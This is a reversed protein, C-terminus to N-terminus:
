SRARAIMWDQISGPLIRKGLAALYTAKTVYYRAKPRPSELAHLLKKYVAEPPLKFKTAGGTEMKDMLRQYTESHASSAIDINAKFANLAHESFRTWIPGPEIISVNIGTGKLELRMADSLAELAFKSANYAGTYPTSVLGLVSSCQVIRGRSNKRMAPILRNTLDHWGFFNAEFQARLIDTPLDEVAGPQGYAGNNFLAYLRGDTENLVRDAVAAVSGTDTYDLHLAQIGENELRAIDDPKRATAFVQWGREILGKASVHGIGSSCGTILISLDKSM